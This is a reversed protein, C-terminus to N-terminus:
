GSCMVCDSGSCRKPEDREGLETELKMKEDMLPLAEEMPLNNKLASVIENLRQSKEEFSM